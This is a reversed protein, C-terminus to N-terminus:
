SAAVAEAERPRPAPAAALDPAARARSRRATVVRMALLAIVAGALAMEALDHLPHTGYVNFFRLAVTELGFCSTFVAGYLEGVLKQVAYPSLPEPRMSEVKPLPPVTVVANEPAWAEPVATTKCGSPLIRTM